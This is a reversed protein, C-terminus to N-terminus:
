SYSSAGYIRYICILVETKERYTGISVKNEKSKAHGVYHLLIIARGVFGMKKGAIEMNIKANKKNSVWCTLIKKTQGEHNLSNKGM